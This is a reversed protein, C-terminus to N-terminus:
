LVDQVIRSGEPAAIVKAIQWGSWDVKPEKSPSVWITQFRIESSSLFEIYRKTNYADVTWIPGSDLILTCPHYKAMFNALAISLDLQCCSQEGGSLMDYTRGNGNRFHVLLDRMEQGNEDKSLQLRFDEFTLGVIAGKDGIMNLLLLEEIGLMRSLYTIADDRKSLSPKEAPSVLTMNYPNLFLEEKDISYTIRSEKLQVSVFHEVPSFYSISYQMERNLWRALQSPNFAGRIMDCITTKGSSNDGYILTVKGFAISTSEVFVPSKQMDLKDIWGIPSSYQNLKFSIRQEHIDKFGRLISPSYKSGRDADVVAHHHACLLIGNHPSQVQEQSIGSTARPGVDTAPFIHAVHGVFSAERPNTAPGVLLTSCNPFSCMYGARKAVVEKTASSFEWKAM